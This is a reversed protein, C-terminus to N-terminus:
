IDPLFRKAVDLALRAPRKTVADLCCWTSKVEALVTEGRKIVTTFQAKAGKVTEAIVDAIVEDDLFAPKRYKIEHQLAIWLHRRVADAPAVTEWFKVVADQVWKLYVANNVHGMHDIDAPLIPIPYHYASSSM